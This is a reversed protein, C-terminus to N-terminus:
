NTPNDTTKTYQVTVYGSSNDFDPNTNKIRLKNPKAYDYLFQGGQGQTYLSINYMYKNNKAYAYAYLVNDINDSIDVNATSSGVFTFAITKQYIPKGDIWKGVVKEATSFESSSNVKNELNTIEEQVTTVSSQMESVSAQLDSIEKKINAGGDKELANVRKGLSMNGNM